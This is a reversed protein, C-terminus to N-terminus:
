KFINEEIIGLKGLHKDTGYRNKLSFFPKGSSSFGAPTDIM